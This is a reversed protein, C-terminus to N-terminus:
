CLTFKDRSFKIDYKLHNGFIAAAATAFPLATSNARSILRGPRAAEPHSPLM